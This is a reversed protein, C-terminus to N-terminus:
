KALTQGTIPLTFSVTTGYGNGDQDWFIPSAAQVQGGHAQILQKVIALGLGSGGSSRSRSKDARYFRDFIYPLNEQDIGYGTDTVSIQISNDGPLETAQLTISGDKSTYRLANGILNYIVQTIRDPDILIRQSNTQISATLLIGKQSAQPLYQEVAHNILKNLDTEALELKLQGAEALSLLRLDGILRNLLLTEGYLATLQEDDYPLVGDQIGELTGQIATLPTRLEHAVDAMLNQRQIEAKALSDAMQNFTSGLEGFEDKTRIDVQQQLNGSAIAKAARSLQRLPSTIQFFLLAGILSAIVGTIIASSIIANQVSHRFEYAPTGESIKDNPTIVLTGVLTNQVTIQTGYKLDASSLQKGVLENQTDSVVLGNQDVLILQQDFIGMLEGSGSQQGQGVGHVQGPTSSSIGSTAQNNLYNEIVAGVGNWDNTKEYYSTLIPILRQTWIQGSRTTYLNFADETARSTLLSMVVTGLGTILLFAGMLKFLLRNNM